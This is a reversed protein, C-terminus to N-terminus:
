VSYWEYAALPWYPITNILRTNNIECYNEFEASIFQGGNDATISLPNDFRAFIVKLRKIAEISDIKTMIEIEIFRSYYDVIVFLYHGSPLPGLFDIAIHQWAESSLKTRQMPEPASPASVLTCGKCKKVFEEVENDIKPWWVEARLRRKM